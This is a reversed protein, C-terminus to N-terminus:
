SLSMGSQLFSNKIAQPLVILMMTQMSTMGISRAAESQGKDISQIGSRIIESMYAGTNISIICIGAQIANWGIMPRLLNYFFIAQVMM